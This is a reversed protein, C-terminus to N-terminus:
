VRGESAALLVAEVNSAARMHKCGGTPSRHTWHPCSCSSAEGDIVEVTYCHEGAQEDGYSHNAVNVAGIAEGEPTTPVRFSFQEFRARREDISATEDDTAKQHGPTQTSM